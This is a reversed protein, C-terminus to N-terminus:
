FGYILQSPFRSADNKFDYHLFAPRSIYGFLILHRGGSHLAPKPSAQPLHARRQFGSESAAFVQNLPQSSDHSERMSFRRGRLHEYCSEERCTSDLSLCCEDGGVLASYKKLWHPGGNPGKGAHASM